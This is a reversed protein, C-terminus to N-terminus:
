RTVVCFPSVRVLRVQRAHTLRHSGGHVYEVVVGDEYQPAPVEESIELHTSTAVSTDHTQRKRRMKKPDGLAVSDWRPVNYVDGKFRVQYGGDFNNNVSFGVIVGKAGLGEDRM